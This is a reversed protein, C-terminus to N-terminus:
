IDQKTETAVTAWTEGTARGASYQEVQVDAASACTRIFNQNTDPFKMCIAGLCLRNSFLNAGVSLM